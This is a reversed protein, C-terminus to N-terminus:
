GGDYNSKPGTISHINYQKSAKSDSTFPLIYGFDVLSHGQGDTLGMLQMATQDERPGPKADDACGGHLERENVFDGYRARVFFLCLLHFADGPM